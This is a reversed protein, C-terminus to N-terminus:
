IENDPQPTMFKSILRIIKRILDKKKMVLFDFYFNLYRSLLFLYFVNKMM